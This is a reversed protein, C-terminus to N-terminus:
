RGKVKSFHQIMRSLAHFAAHSVQECELSASVEKGHTEVAEQVRIRGSGFFGIEVARVWTSVLDVLAQPEVGAEDALAALIEVRGSLRDPISARLGPRRSRKM